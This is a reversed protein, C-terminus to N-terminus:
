GPMVTVACALGGPSTRSSGTTCAHQRPLRADARGAGSGPAMEVHLGYPGRSVRLTQSTADM